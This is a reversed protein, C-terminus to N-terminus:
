PQIMAQGAYTCTAGPQGSIVMTATQTATAFQATIVDSTSQNSLQTGASGNAFGTAGEHTFWLSGPVSPYFAIRSLGGSCDVEVQGLTGVTMLLVSGASTTSQYGRVMEVAGGFASTSQAHATVAFVLGGLATIVALTAVAFTSFRQGPRACFDIWVRGRDLLAFFGPSFTWMKKAGAFVGTAV